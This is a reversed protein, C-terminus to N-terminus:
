KKRLFFILYTLSALSQLLFFFLVTQDLDSLNQHKPKPMNFISSIYMNPESIYCHMMDVRGKEYEYKKSRGQVLRTIVIDWM